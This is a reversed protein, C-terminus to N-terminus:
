YVTPFLIFYMWYIVSVSLIIAYFGKYTGKKSRSKENRPRSMKSAHNISEEEINIELM